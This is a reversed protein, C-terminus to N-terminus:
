TKRFKKLKTKKIKDTLQLKRNIYDLIKVHYFIIFVQFHKLLMHGNQKKKVNKQEFFNRHKTDSYLSSDSGVM